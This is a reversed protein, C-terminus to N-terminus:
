RRDREVSQAHGMGNQGHGVLGHAGDDVRGLAVQGKLLIEYILEALGFISPMVRSPRASARGEARRRSGGQGPGVQDNEAGGIGVDADVRDQGQGAQPIHERGLRHDGDAGDDAASRQFARCGLHHGLQARIDARQAHGPVILVDQISEHDVPRVCRLRTSISARPM